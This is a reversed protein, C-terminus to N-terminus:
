ALLAAIARDGASSSEALKMCNEAQMGDQM